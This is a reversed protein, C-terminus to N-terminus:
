VMISTKSSRSLTSKTSAKCRLLLLCTEPHLSARNASLASRFLTFISNCAAFILLVSLFFGVGQHIGHGLGIPGAELDTAHPGWDIRRLGAAARERWWDALHWLPIAEMRSTILGSKISQWAPRGRDSPQQLETPATRSVWYSLWLDSGNRSAQLIIIAVLVATSLSLNWWLERAKWIISKTKKYHGPMHSAICFNTFWLVCAILSALM